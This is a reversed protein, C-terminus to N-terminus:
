PNIPRIPKGPSHARVASLTSTPVRVWTIDEVGFALWPVLLVTAVMM